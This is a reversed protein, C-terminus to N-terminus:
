KEVPGLPANGYGTMELYGQGNVGSGRAAVAGEWYSIGLGDKSGVFEQSDLKAVVNLQYGPIKLEWEVPYSNQSVESRWFRLPRLEIQATEFKAQKGKADVLTATSFASVGGKAPRIQFLMLDSGDSLQLAFWDWGVSSKDLFSSGWEHDMWSTGKVKLPRGQWKITGESRLRTYSYYHSANSEEGGKRSYGNDGHLVAPREAVLQMNLEYGDAAAALLFRSGDIAVSQEEVWIREASGGAIGLGTRRVHEASWYGPTGSLSSIAFHSAYIQRLALKSPNDQDNNLGIRFFTLQYGFEDGNEDTLNGTFYWWEIRHDPHPAHDAPLQIKYSKDALRWPISSECRVARPLALSFIFLLALAICHFKARNM